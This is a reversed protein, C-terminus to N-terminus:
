LFMPKILITHKRAIKSSELGLVKLEMKDNFHSGGGIIKINLIFLPSILTALVM